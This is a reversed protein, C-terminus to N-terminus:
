RLIIDIEKKFQRWNREMLVYKKDLLYNLAIREGLHGIQHTSKM